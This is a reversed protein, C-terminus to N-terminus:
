RRGKGMGGGSGMRCSDGSGQRYKNGAGDQLANEPRGVASEREVQSMSNVRNQWEARFTEQDETAANRMTGRMQAMEENTMTSYDTAAFVPMSMLSLGIVTCGLVSTIKMSKKM